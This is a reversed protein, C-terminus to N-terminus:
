IETVGIKGKNVINVQFIKVDLNCTRSKMLTKIHMLFQKAVEYPEDIYLTAVSNSCCITYVRNLSRM